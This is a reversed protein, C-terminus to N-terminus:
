SRKWVVKGDVITAVPGGRFRRKNFPSNKSKSYSENVDYTWDLEPDFITIDAAGGVALRGCNLGFVKAPGTTFLEVLRMM